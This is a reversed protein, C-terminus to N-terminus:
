PRAIDTLIQGMEASRAKDAEPSAWYGLLVVKNVGPRVGVMFFRVVTPAGKWKAPVNMDLVSVGNVTETTKEIQESTTVGQGKFYAIYEDMAADVKEPALGQVWFIIESDPTAVEIGSKSPSVKWGDPITIPFAPGANTFTYTKAFVPSALACALFGLAGIAVKFRSKDM